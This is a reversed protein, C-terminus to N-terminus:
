YFESYTRGPEGDTNSNLVLPVDLNRWSRSWWRRNGCHFYVRKSSRWLLLVQFGHVPEVQINCRLYPESRCRRLGSYSSLLICRLLFSRFLCCFKSVSENKHKRMYVDVSALAKIFYRCLSDVKISRSCSKAGNKCCKCLTLTNELVIQMSKIQHRQSTGTTDNM